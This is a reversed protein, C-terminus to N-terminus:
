RYNSRDRRRTKDWTKRDWVHYEIEKRSNTFTFHLLGNKDVCVSPYAGYRQDLIQLPSTTLGNLEGITMNKRYKQATNNWLIVLKEKWQIVHVSNNRNYVNTQQPESWEVLDESEQYYAFKSFNGFNRGISCVKTGSFWLTPQICDVGYRSVEELNMSGGAYLVCTRNVEDYLPLLLKGSKTRIPNCRGLLHQTPSALQIPDGLLAIGNKYTLRQIWLSCYKWRDALRHIPGIDEFRSWLLVAENNDMPWLVPNGTNDGIRLIKSKSKKNIFILHVSQDDRCEGTGSYWAVLVGNRHPCVTSCHNFPLASIRLSRDVAFINTSFWKM